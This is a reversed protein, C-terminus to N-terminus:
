EMPQEDAHRREPHQRHHRTQDNQEDKSQVRRLEAPLILIQEGM